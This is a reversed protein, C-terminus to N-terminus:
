PRLVPVGSAIEEIRALSEPATSNEGLRNDKGDGHFDSSGTVVLDHRAALERALRRGEDDHDRHDAEIGVLGAEVLEAVDEGDLSRQRQTAFPHAVVPVGGAERVLRVADFTTAAYHPEYYPSGNHLWEAFVANRDPAQGKAVLADALHPRGLSSPGDPVQALVDEWTIDFGDAAMHEVIRRLRPVRDERIRRMEETLEPHGPDFLYALLHVSRGRHRTSLEAGRVLTIDHREAAEAAEAWGATSDHDTLALATLGASAAQAVLDAPEDTGDSRASHTHLDIVEAM